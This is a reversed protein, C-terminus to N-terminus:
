INIKVHTNIHTTSHYITFFFYQIDLTQDLYIALDLFHFLLHFIFFLYTFHFFFFSKSSLMLFFDLLLEFIFNIYFASYKYCLCFLGQTNLISKSVRRSFIVEWSMLLNLCHSNAACNAIVRALWFWRYEGFALM